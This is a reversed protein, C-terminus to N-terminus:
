NMTDSQTIIENKEKELSKGGVKPGKSARTLDLIIPHIHPCTTLDNQLLKMEKTEKELEMKEVLIVKLNKTLAVVLDFPPCFNM